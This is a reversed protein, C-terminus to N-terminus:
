VWRLLSEDLYPEIGLFKSYLRKARAIDKVPCIITRIGETM